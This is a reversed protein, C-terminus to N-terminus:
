SNLYQFDDFRRVRIKRRRWWIVPYLCAGVLFAPQLVEAVVSTVPSHRWSGTFTRNLLGLTVSRLVLLVILPWIAVSPQAVALVSLAILLLPHVGYAVAFVVRVWPSENQLLIRTSVFWRHMLRRYHTASAVSTRIFQPRATQVLRGGLRRIERAIALDDTIAHATVAFIRHRRAYDTRVAYCMGNISRPAACAAASLYTLIAASNVFETVLRSWRGRAPLYCPLGTAIDAGGDLATVLRVLSQRPARTDDDIVALLETRVLPLAAEQKWLKPNIGPSPEDTEVIRIDRDPYAAALHRCLDRATDDACDVIWILPSERLEDLGTQLAERLTEDGSTVPQVITVRSLAVPAPPEERARHLLALGAKAWLQALYTAAIVFGPNM